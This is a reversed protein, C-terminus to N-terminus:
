QLKYKRKLKEWHLRTTPYQEKEYERVRYKLPCVHNISLDTISM